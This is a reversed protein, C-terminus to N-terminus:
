QFVYLPEELPVRQTRRGQPLLRESIAVENTLKPSAAVDAHAGHLAHSFEHALIYGTGIM